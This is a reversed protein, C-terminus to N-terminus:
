AQTAYAGVIQSDTTGYSTLSIVATKSATIVSPATGLWTWSSPYYVECNSGSAFIKISAMKVAGLNSGTLYVSSSISSSHFLSANFDISMTSTYNVLTLTGIINSSVLAYSSTTSFSSTVSFISYSSTLSSTISQNGTILQQGFSASDFSFIVSGTGNLLYHTNGVPTYSQVVREYSQSIVKGTFSQSIFQM